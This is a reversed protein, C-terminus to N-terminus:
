TFNASNRLDKISSVDFFKKVNLKAMENNYNIKVKEIFHDSKSWSKKKLNM